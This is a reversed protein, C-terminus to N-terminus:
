GASTRVTVEDMVANMVGSKHLAARVSAPDYPKLLHFNAGIAKALALEDPNHTAACLIIPPRKALELRAIDKLFDLAGHCPLDWDLFIVDFHGDKCLDIARGPGQAEEAVVDAEHLIDVLICRVSDSDEIVLGTAM